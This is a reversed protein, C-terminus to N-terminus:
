SASQSGTKQTERPETKSSRKTEAEMKNLLLRAEEVEPGNGRKIEDEDQHWSSERYPKMQAVHVIQTKKKGQFQVQYNVSSLQKVIVYPGIYCHQLKDSKGVKRVPRYILVLEGEEYIVDRRNEDYREKRKEDLSMLRNAVLSRATNLRQQLMQVYDQGKKAAETLPNASVNFELDTPIEAERNYILFFPTFGTAEHRSTNWAFIVYPLIEAWIKQDSNVYMSLMEAITHNLREVIGQSQPRFPSSTKHHTRFATTVARVMESVYNTGNDTQLCHMLGHRLLVKKVFFETNFETNNFETNHTPRSPQNWHM